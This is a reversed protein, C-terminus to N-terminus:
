EASHVKPLDAQAVRSKENASTGTTAAGSAVAALRSSLDEGPTFRTQGGRRRRREARRLTAPNEEENSSRRGSGRQAAGSKVEREFVVLFSLPQSIDYCRLLPRKDEIM